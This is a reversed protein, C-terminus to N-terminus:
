PKRRKWSYGTFPACLGILSVYVPYFMSILFFSATHNKKSFFANASNLILYDVTIKMGALLSFLILGVGKVLFLLFFLVLFLNTLFVLV